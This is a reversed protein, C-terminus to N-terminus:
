EHAIHKNTCSEHAIQITQARDIEEHAIQADKHAGRACSTKTPGPNSGRVMCCSRKCTGPEIGPDSRRHWALSIRPRHWEGGRNSSWTPKRFFLVEMLFFIALGHSTSFGRQPFFGKLGRGAHLFGTQAPLSELQNTVHEVYMITNILWFCFHKHLPLSIDNSQETQSM